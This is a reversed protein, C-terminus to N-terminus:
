FYNTLHNKIKKRSRHILVWFHEKNIDMENCVAETSYNNVFKFNFAILEQPTLKKTAEKLISQLEEAFLYDLFSCPDYILEGLVRDSYPIGDSFYRLKREIQGKKSNAKRYHDTIKNKLIATLWTRESAEGKFLHLSELGSLITEQVIDQIATKDNVRDVAFNYLYANYNKIWNEPNLM